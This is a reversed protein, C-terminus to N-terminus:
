ESGNGIPMHSKVNLIAEPLVFSLVGNKKLNLLAREIFVDYSEINKGVASEYNQRLYGSEIDTFNYGWPPNGVIFDFDVGEYESM